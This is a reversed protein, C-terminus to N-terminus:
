NGSPSASASNASEQGTAAPTVGSEITPVPERTLEPTIVVVLQQDQLAGNRNTTSLGPLGTNTTTDSNTLNSVMVTSMGPQVSIASTFEESDLVPNGNASSGELSALALKLSLDMSGNGHIVPTAELSVGLDAYQIAPQALTSSSTAANTTLSTSTSTYSETIIPYKEGIHLKGTENNLLHMTADQLQTVTTDTLSMNLSASDPEVGTTTIGNGFVEFSSGLPSNGAYGYLVLLAAEEIVSTSSTILGEEIAAEIVSSNDAVLQDAETAVNFIATSAPPTLGADLNRDRSTVYCRVHLLVQTDHTYLSRLTANVQRLTEPDATLTIGGSQFASNSLSFVNKLISEVDTQRQSAKMALGPLHITETDKQLYQKQNADTNPVVLIINQETPIFLTNTLLALMDRTTSLDSGDIDFRLPQRPPNGLFQPSKGFEALAQTIVSQANGRLHFDHIQKAPHGPTDAYAPWSFLALTLM